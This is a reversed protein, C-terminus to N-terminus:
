HHLNQRHLKIHPFFHFHLISRFTALSMRIALRLTMIPFIIQAFLPVKSSPCEYEEYFTTLGCFDDPFTYTNGRSMGQICTQSAPNQFQKVSGSCTTGGPGQAGINLTCIAVGYAVSLIFHRFYAMEFNGITDVRGPSVRKLHLQHGMQECKALLMTMMKKIKM